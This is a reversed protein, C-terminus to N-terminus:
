STSAIRATTMAITRVVSLSSMKFAAQAAIFRVRHKAYNFAAKAEDWEFDDDSM